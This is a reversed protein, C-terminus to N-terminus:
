KGKKPCLTKRSNHTPRRAINTYWDSSIVSGHETPVKEGESARKARREDKKKKKKKKSTARASESESITHHNWLKPTSAHIKSISILNKTREGQRCSLEITTNKSRRACMSCKGCVCIEWVIRLLPCKVITENKRENSRKHSKRNFISISM